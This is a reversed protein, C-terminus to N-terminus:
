GDSGAESSGPVPGGDTHVKDVSRATSQARAVVPAHGGTQAADVAGRLAQACVDCIVCGKRVPRGCGGVCGRARTGGDLARAVRRTRTM